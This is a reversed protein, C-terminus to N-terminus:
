RGAALRDMGRSTGPAAGATRLCDGSEADYCSTLTGQANWYMAQGDPEGDTYHQVSRMQGNAHWEIAYGQRRGHVYRESSEPTGDPYWVTRLGHLVSDGHVVEYTALMRRGGEPYSTARIPLGDCASLNWSALAALAAIRINRTTKPM